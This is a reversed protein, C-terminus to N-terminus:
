FNKLMWSEFELEPEMLKDISAGTFSKMMWDELMLTEEIFSGTEGTSTFSETMWDELILEEEFLIESNNKFSKLSMMWNELEMEAEVFSIVISTVSKGSEKASSKKGKTGEAFVNLTGLSLILIFLINLIQTKMKNNKHMM